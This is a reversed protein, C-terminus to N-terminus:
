KKKGSFLKKVAKKVTRKIKKIKVKTPHSPM